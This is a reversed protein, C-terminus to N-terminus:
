LVVAVATLALGVATLALGVATLALGLELDLVSITQKVRDAKGQQWNKDCRVFVAHFIRRGDKFVHKSSKVNEYM